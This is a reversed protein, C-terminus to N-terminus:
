VKVMDTIFSCYKLLIAHEELYMDTLIPPSTMMAESSPGGAKQWAEIFLRDHRVKQTWGSLIHCTTGVLILSMIMLKEVAVELWVDVSCYTQCMHLVDSHACVSILLCRSAAWSLVWVCRSRDALSCTPLNILKVLSFQVLQHWFLDIVMRELGSSVSYCLTLNSTEGSLNRIYVLM